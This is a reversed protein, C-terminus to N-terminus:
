THIFQVLHRNGADFFMMLFRYIRVKTTHSTTFVHDHSEIHKKFEHHTAIHAYKELLFIREYKHIKMTYVFHGKVNFYAM